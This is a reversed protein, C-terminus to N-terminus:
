VIFFEILVWNDLWWFCNFKWSAIYYKNEIEDGINLHKLTPIVRKRSFCYLIGLHLDHSSTEIWPIRTAFFYFYFASLLTNGQESMHFFLYSISVNKPKLQFGNHLLSYFVLKWIRPIIKNFVPIVLYRAWNNKDWKKECKM